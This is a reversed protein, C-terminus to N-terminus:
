PFLRLGDQIVVILYPPTKTSQITIEAEDRFSSRIENVLTEWERSRTLLANITGVLTATLMESGGIIVTISNTSTEDEKMRTTPSIENHSLIYSMM